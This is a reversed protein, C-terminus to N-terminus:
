SIRTPTDIVIIIKNSLSSPLKEECHHDSSPFVINSERNFEQIRRPEFSKNGAAEQQHKQVQKRPDHV